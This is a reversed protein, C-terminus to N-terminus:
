LHKTRPPFHFHCCSSGPSVSCQRSQCKIVPASHVCWAGRKRICCLPFNTNSQILKQQAKLVDANLVDALFAVFQHFNCPVFALVTCPSRSAPFVCLFSIFM